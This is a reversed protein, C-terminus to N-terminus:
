IDRLMARLTPWTLGVTYVAGMVSFPWKAERPSWQLLNVLAFFLVCVGCHAAGISATLPRRMAVGGILLALGLLFLIPGTVLVSEVEVYVILALAVACCVWSLILCCQSIWRWRRLRRAADDPKAYELPIVRLPDGM